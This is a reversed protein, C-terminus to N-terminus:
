ANRPNESTNGSNNPRPSIYNKQTSEALGALQMDELLRKRLAENM